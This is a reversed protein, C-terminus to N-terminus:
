LKSRLIQRVARKFKYKNANFAPRMYPKAKMRRTGLEVYIAYYPDRTKFYTKFRKVGWWMKKTRRSYPLGSAGVGGGGRGISRIGGSAEGSGALVQYRVWNQSVSDSSYKMIRISRKLSGTDVPVIKKAYSWCNVAFSEAALSLAVM